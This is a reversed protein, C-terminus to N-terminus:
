DDGADLKVADGTQLGSGGEVVILADRVSGTWRKSPDKEPDDLSLIEVQHLIRDRMGIAVKMRRAM